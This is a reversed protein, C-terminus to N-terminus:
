KSIRFLGAGHAGIPSNFETTFSGIDKQAWLDRVKYKTDPKLGLKEFAVKINVPEKSEWQNFFALYKDDSNPIDAAWIIIANKFKIQRPNIATRNVALAEENTLLELTLKDTEPLYGGIFLPSRSIYMLSLLALLENENFNSIRPDPGKYSIKKGIKGVPLMDLDLWFGPGSKDAVRAAVPFTVKLMQWVDWFDAGTRAMHANEKQIELPINDPVISIVIDRGSTRAAKSIGELEAVTVIDDVKVFDIGWEAM